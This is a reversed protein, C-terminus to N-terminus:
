DREEEEREDCGADGEGEGPAIARDVSCLARRGGRLENAALVGLPNMEEELAEGIVREVAEVDHEHQLHKEHEHENKEPVLDVQLAHHNHQKEHREKEAEEELRGEGGRSAVGLTYEGAVTQGLPLTRGSRFRLVIRKHQGHRGLLSKRETWVRQSQEANHEESETIDIDHHGRRQRNPPSDSFAHNIQEEREEHNFHNNCSTSFHIREHRSLWIAEKLPDNHIRGGRGRFRHKHICINPTLLSIRKTPQLRTQLAVDHNRADRLTTIDRILQQLQGQRFHQSVVHIMLFIRTLM